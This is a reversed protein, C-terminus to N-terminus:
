KAVTTFKRAKALFGKLLSIEKIIPKELMVRELVGRVLVKSIKFM